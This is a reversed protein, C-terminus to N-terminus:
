VESRVIMTTTSKVIQLAKIKSNVQNLRQVTQAEIEVVIDYIGSLKFCKTVYEINTLQESALNTYGFCTEIFIFSKRM